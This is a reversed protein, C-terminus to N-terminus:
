DCCARLDLGIDMSGCGEALETDEDFESGLFRWQDM